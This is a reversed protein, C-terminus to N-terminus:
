KKLVKSVSGDSNRVINIGKTLERLCRGDLSYVSSKDSTAQSIEDVANDSGDYIVYSIYYAPTSTDNYDDSYYTYGIIKKGDCSIGSPVSFGLYDSEGLLEYYEPFADIFLEAETQGARMIFSGISAFYPMGVCGIFTGDDSIGTPYLGLSGLDIEQKETYLKIEKSQTDYIVPVMREGEEDEIMGVFTVYRGNNSISLYHASLGFLPKSDDELDAESLKLYKGLFFDPEYEGVENRYWLMPVFFSGLQGYIVSGDRSVLKAASIGNIQNALGFLEDDAPIPLLKWDGGRIGYAAHSGTADVLSGVIINGDNTLDEYLVGSYGDPIPNLSLEGNGFTYSYELGVARGNNDVHRLEGGQDDEIATWKVEDSDLDAIFVAAGRTCAGCVYKGNGSIGLAQLQPEYISPFQDTCSLVKLQQAQVSALLSLSATLVLFKKM